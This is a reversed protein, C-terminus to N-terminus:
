RCTAAAPRADVVQVGAGDDALELAVAVRDEAEVVHQALPVVRRVEVRPSNKSWSQTPSRLTM